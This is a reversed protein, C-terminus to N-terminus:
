DLEHSRQQGGEPEQRCTLRKRAAAKDDGGHSDQPSQEIDATNEVM